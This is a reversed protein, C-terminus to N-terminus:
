GFNFLFGSLRVVRVRTQRAAYHPTGVLPFATGNRLGMMQCAPITETVLLLWKNQAAISSNYMSGIRQAKVFM